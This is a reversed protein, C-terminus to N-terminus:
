LGLLQEGFDFLLIKGAVWSEVDDRGAHAVVVGDGDGVAAGM